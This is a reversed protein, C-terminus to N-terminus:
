GVLEVPAPPTTREEVQKMGRGKSKRAAAKASRAVARRAQEDDEYDDDDEFEELAVPLRQMRGFMDDVTIPQRGGRERSLYEDYETQLREREQRNTWREEKRYEAYEGFPEINVVADAGHLWRMIYIEPATMVKPVQNKIEGNLYVTCSYARM